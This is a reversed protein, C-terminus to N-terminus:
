LSFFLIPFVQHIKSLVDRNSQNDHCVISVYIRDKSYRVKINHLLTAENLYMLSGALSFCDCVMLLEPSGEHVSLFSFRSNLFNKKEEKQKWNLGIM